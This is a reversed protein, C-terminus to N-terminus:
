AMVQRLDKPEPNSPPPTKLREESSM